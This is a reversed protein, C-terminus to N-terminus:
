DSSSRDDDDDEHDRVVKEILRQRVGKLVAERSSPESGSQGDNLVPDSQCLVLAVGLLKSFTVSNNFGFVGEPTCRRGFNHLGVYNAKVASNNYVLLTPLNCDPYNLICDTSIIKVFKTAPYKTALQELCQLLLGCEPYGDKYLIVVVWVDPPAQSVERVFDSGSIPVVSGYRQVKAAQRLEGLRKKMKLCYSCRWDTTRGGCVVGREAPEIARERLSEQGHRLGVARILEFVSWRMRATERWVRVPRELPSVAKMREGVEIRM